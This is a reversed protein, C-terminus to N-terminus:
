WLDKVSEDLVVDRLGTQLWLRRAFQTDNIQLRDNVRTAEGRKPRGPTTTLPLGALFGLYDRCLSRPWFNRLLVIQDRFAPIPADFTLETVPLAPRFPPWGITAAAQANADAQHGAADSRKQSQKGATTKNKNGM